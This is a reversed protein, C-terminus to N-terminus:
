STKYSKPQASISAAGIKLDCLKTHDKRKKTQQEAGPAPRHMKHRIQKM